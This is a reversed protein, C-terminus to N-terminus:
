REINSRVVVMEPNIAVLVCMYLIAAAAFFKIVKIRSLFIRALTIVNVILLLIMFSHSIFRAGTHGYSYEYYLLRMHSSAMIVFNFVVLLTFLVKLYVPINGDKQKTFRVAVATMILNLCTIFLLEGFGRVAHVSSTLGLTSMVTDQAKFFYSFQVGAFLIYVIGIMSLAVATTSGHIPRKDSIKCAERKGTYEKRRAVAIPGAAASAGILFLLLYLAVDDLHIQTFFLSVHGAINVDAM